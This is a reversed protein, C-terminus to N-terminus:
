QNSIKDSFNCSLNNGIPNSTGGVGTNDICWWGAYILKGQVAFSQGDTNCYFVLKRKEIRSSPSDRYIEKISKSFLKNQYCGEVGYTPNGYNGSQKYQELLTSRLDTLDAMITASTGKCRAAANSSELISYFLFLILSILIYSVLIKRFLHPKKHVFVFGMVFFIVMCLVIIWVPKFDTGGSCADSSYFFFLTYVVLISTTINFITFFFIRLAKKM